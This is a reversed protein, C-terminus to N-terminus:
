RTGMREKGHASDGEVLGPGKLAKSVYILTHDNKNMEEFVSSYVTFHSGIHLDSFKPKEQYIKTQLCRRLIEATLSIIIPLLYILRIFIYCGDLLEKLFRM